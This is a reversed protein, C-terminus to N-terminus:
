TGNPDQVLAPHRSLPWWCPWCTQAFVHIRWSIATLWIQGGASTVSYRRFWNVQLWHDGDLDEYKRKSQKIFYCTITINDKCVDGPSQLSGSVAVQVPSPTGPWHRCLGGFQMQCQWTQHVTCQKSTVYQRFASGILLQNDRNTQKAPVALLNCHALDPLWREYGHVQGTAAQVSM